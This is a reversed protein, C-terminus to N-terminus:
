SFCVVFFCFCCALIQFDSWWSPSCGAILSIEPVPLGTVTLFSDIPACIPNERTSSGHGVRKIHVGFDDGGAVVM